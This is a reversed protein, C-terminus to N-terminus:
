LAIRFVWSAGSTCGRTGSTMLLVPVALGESKATVGFMEFLFESLAIGDKFATNRAKFHIIQVVYESTLPYFYLWSYRRRNGGGEL